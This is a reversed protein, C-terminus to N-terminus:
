WAKSSFLNKIIAVQEEKPLGVLAAYDVGNNAPHNGTLFCDCEDCYYIGYDDGYKEPQAWGKCWVTFAKADYDIFGEKAKGSTYWHTCHTDASIYNSM